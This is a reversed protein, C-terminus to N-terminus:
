GFNKGEEKPQTGPLGVFWKGAVEPEIGPRDIYWCHLDTKKGGDASRAYIEKLVEGKRAGSRVIIRQSATNRPDVKAVLQLM